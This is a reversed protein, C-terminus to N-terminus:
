WMVVVLDLHPNLQWRLASISIVSVRGYCRM